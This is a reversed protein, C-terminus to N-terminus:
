RDFFARMDPPITPKRELDEYHLTMERPMKRWFIPDFVNYVGREFTTTREVISGFNLRKVWAREVKHYRWERGHRGRGNSDPVELNSNMGLGMNVPDEGVTLTALKPDFQMGRHASLFGIMGFQDAVMTPPINTVTGDPYMQINMRPEPQLGRFFHLGSRPIVGVNPNGMQLSSPGSTPMVIGSPGSTIGSPRSTIGSPEGVIGSPGDVIGCLGSMIESPGGM